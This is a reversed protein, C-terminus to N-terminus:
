LEAAITELLINQACREKQNSAPKIRKYNGDSQLQWAQTNDSIYVMLGDKIIRKKLKEDEIPFCAEVRRFFNRDM